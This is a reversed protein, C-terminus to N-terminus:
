TARHPHHSHIYLDGTVNQQRSM